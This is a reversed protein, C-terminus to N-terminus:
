GELVPDMFCHAQRPITVHAANPFRVDFDDRLLHPPHFIIGGGAGLILTPKTSIVGVNQSLRTSQWLPRVVMAM